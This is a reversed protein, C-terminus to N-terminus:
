AVGQEAVPQRLLRRRPRDVMLGDLAAQVQGFQHAVRERLAASDRLDQAAVGRGARQAREVLQDLEANSRLNMERFHAFFDTLNNM